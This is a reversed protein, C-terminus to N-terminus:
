KVITKRKSHKDKWWYENLAEAFSPTYITSWGGLISLAILFAWGVGAPASWDPNREEFCFSMTIYSALGLTICTVLFIRFGRQYFTKKKRRFYLRRIIICLGFPLLAILMLKWLRSDIDSESNSAEDVMVSYAILISILAVYQLFAFLPFTYKLKHTVVFLTFGQFFLFLSTAFPFYASMFIASSRNMASPPEGSGGAFLLSALLVSFFAAFLIAIVPEILTAENLNRDRSRRSGILFVIVAIAFGAMTGSIGAYSQMIATMNNNDLMTQM